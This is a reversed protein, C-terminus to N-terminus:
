TKHSALWQMVAVAAVWVPVIGILTDSVSHSNGDIVIFTLVLFGIYPVYTLWGQWSCPLYSWRVPVFWAGKRAKPLKQRKMDM